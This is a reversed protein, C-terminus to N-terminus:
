LRAQDPDEPHDQEHARLFFARMVRIIQQRL